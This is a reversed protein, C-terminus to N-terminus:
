SGLKARKHEEKQFRDEYKHAQPYEKSDKLFLAFLV